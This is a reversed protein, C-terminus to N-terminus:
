GKIKMERLRWEENKMKGEGRPPQTPAKENMDNEIFCEKSM